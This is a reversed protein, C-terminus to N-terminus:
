EKCDNIIDLILRTASSEDLLNAAYFFGAADGFGERIKRVNDDQLLPERVREPEFNKWKSKDLHTGIIHISKTGKNSKKLKNVTADIDLNVRRCYNDDELRSLDIIYFIHKRKEVEELWSNLRDKGAPMDSLEEVEYVKGDSDSIDFKEYRHLSSTQEKKNSTPVKGRLCSIFTTKGTDAQGWVAFGKLKIKEDSSFWKAVVAGLGVLGIGIFWYM